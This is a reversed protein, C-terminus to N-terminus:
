GCHAALNLLLQSRLLLLHSLGVRHRTCEARRLSRKRSDVQFRGSRSGFDCSGKSAFHECRIGVLHQGTSEDARRERSRNRNLGARSSATNALLSDSRWLQLDAYVCEVCCACASVCCVVSCAIPRSERVLKRPAAARGIHDILNSIKKNACGVMGM